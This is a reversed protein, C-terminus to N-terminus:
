QIALSNSLTILCCAPSSSSEIFTARYAELIRLVKTIKM